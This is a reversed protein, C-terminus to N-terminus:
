FDVLVQRKVARQPVYVLDYQKLIVVWKALWANLIPRSLICKIPDARSVVQVTYAQTYNRLKQISFILSLRTKEILSYRLETGILM